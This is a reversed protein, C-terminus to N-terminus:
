SEGVVNYMVEPYRTLLRIGHGKVEEGEQDFPQADAHEEQMDGRPDPLQVALAEARANERDQAALRRLDAEPLPLWYPSDSWLKYRM